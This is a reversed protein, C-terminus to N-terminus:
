GAQNGFCQPRLRLPVVLDALFADGRVPHAAHEHQKSPFSKGRHTSEVRAIVQVVLVHVEAGRTVRATGSVVIAPATNRGVPELIQIEPKVGIERMQEAVLFRHEDNSVVIPARAGDFGQVRLVTHQLLTRSSVLPLFQKPLLRRSMPWLRTGSGGSLIVPYFSITVRAAKCESLARITTAGAEQLYLSALIRHREM